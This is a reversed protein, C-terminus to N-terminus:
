YVTVLEEFAPSSYEEFTDDIRRIIFVAMDNEEALAIAADWGMVNFATALGDATMSSSTVVTVSVTNHQIPKGTRPDILHSYRVGDQEYYNRYDGSTAIANDGISVVKQVARENSVPKEIAILWPSGDGKQGNVRMEGGIEVLYDTIGQQELLEAVVDVGYGKAITSLDVYLQPHKKILANGRVALKDLGVYQRVALIDQESPITEPRMTPGFGWLNVLPGVTVDLVGDSLQGLRIAENIVLLTEESLEFPTDYRYQNFRSLESTPDYTSMLANVRVLRQDIAAKLAEREVGTVAPFKVNYSTGM